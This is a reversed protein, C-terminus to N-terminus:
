TSSSICTTISCKLPFYRAKMQCISESTVRGHCVYSLSILYLVNDVFVGWLSVFLQNKSFKESM